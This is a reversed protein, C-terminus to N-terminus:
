HYIRCGLVMRIFVNIASVTENRTWEIIVSVDEVQSGSGQVYAMCAFLKENSRETRTLIENM